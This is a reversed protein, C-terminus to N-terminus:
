AVNARCMRNGFLQLSTRRLHIDAYQVRECFTAREKTSKINPRVPSHHAARGRQPLSKKLSTNSLPMFQCRGRPSKAIAATFDKVLNTLELRVSDDRRLDRGALHSHNRLAFTQSARSDNVDNRVVLSFGNPDLRFNVAEHNSILSHAVLQALPSCRRFLYDDAANRCISCEASRM